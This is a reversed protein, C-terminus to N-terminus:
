RCLRDTGGARFGRCEGASSRGLDRNAFWSPTDLIEVTEGDLVIEVRAVGHSLSVAVAQTGVVLGLLLTVFEVM